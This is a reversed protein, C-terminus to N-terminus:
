CRVTQSLAKRTEYVARRIPNPMPRIDRRVPALGGRRYHKAWAIDRAVPDRFTAM